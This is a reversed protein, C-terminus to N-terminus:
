RGGEKPVDLATPDITARRVPKPGITKVREGRYTLYALAVPTSGGFPDPRWEVELGYDPLSLKHTSPNPQPVAGPRAANVAEQLIVQVEPRVQVERANIRRQMQARVGLSVDRQQQGM